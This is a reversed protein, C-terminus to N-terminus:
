YITLRSLESLFYRIKSPAASSLVATSSHINNVSTNPVVEALPAETSAATPQLQSHLEALNNTAFQGSRHSNIVSLAASQVMRNSIKVDSPFYYWHNCYHLLLFYIDMRTDVKMDNIIETCVTHVPYVM